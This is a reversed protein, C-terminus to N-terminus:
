RGTLFVVVWRNIEREHAPMESAHVLTPLRKRNRKVVGGDNEGVSTGVETIYWVLMEREFQEEGM